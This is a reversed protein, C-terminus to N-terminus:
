FRQSSLMHRVPSVIKTFLSLKDTVIDAQGEMLQSFPLEKGYLTTLGNILEIEVIYHRDDPVLSKSKVRGRVMGYELYPFGALRINVDMGEAVKGSNYMGLVVRGIYDGQEEPIITAVPEGENVHQNEGWFRTFTVVGDVPSILLYRRKWIDIDALLDYMAGLAVSEYEEFVDRRAVEAESREQQKREAIIRQSMIELGINQYDVRKNILLQYSREYEQDAIVGGAHLLSDRRFNREEVELDERLLRRKVELEGIYGWIAEVEKKLSEVRLMLLDNKMNNYWSTYARRFRTYSHQIEGLMLPESLEGPATEMMTFENKLFSKLELVRGHDAGSEMVAVIDGRGVHQQESLGIKELRGSTRAKLTAPPNQTTIEVRGPITDPYRIYIAATLFLLFLLFLLTIGWAVIRRPPTGMIERVPESHVIQEDRRSM